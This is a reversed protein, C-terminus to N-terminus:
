FVGSIAALTFAPFFTYYQLFANIPAIALRAWLALCILAVTLLLHHVGGQQKPVLFSYRHAIRLGLRHVSAILYELM